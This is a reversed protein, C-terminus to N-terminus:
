RRRHRGRNEGPADDRGDGILGAGGTFIDGIFRLLGQRGELASTVGNVLRQVAEPDTGGVQWAGRVDWDGERRPRRAFEGSRTTWARRNSASRGDLPRGDADFRDPLDEIDEQPDPRRIPARDSSPDSARRHRALPHDYDQGAGYSFYDGEPAPGEEVEGEAAEEARMAALHDQKHREMTRSSEPSLPIFTVSKSRLGRTSAERGEAEDKVRDLGFDAVPAGGTWALGTRLSAGDASRDDGRPRESVHDPPYNGGPGSPPGPPPAPYGGAPGPNAPPQAPNPPPPPAFGM